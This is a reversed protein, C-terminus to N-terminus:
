YTTINEKFSIFKMEEFHALFQPTTLNEFCFFGQNKWSNFYDDINIVKM